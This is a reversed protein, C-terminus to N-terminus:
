EKEENEINPPATVTYVEVIEMIENCTICFFLSTGNKIINRRVIKECKSCQLLVTEM